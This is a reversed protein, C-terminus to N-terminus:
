SAHVSQLASVDSTFQLTCDINDPFIRGYYLVEHSQDALRRAQDYERQVQMMHDIEGDDSMMGAPHAQVVSPPSVEFKV